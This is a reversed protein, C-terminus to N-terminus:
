LPAGKCLPCTVPDPSFTYLCPAGDVELPEGWYVGDWAPHLRPGGWLPTTSPGCRVYVRGEMRNARVVAHVPPDRLAFPSPM